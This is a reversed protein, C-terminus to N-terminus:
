RGWIDFMGCILLGLCIWVAVIPEGILFIIGLGVCTVYWFAKSMQLDKPIRCNDVGNCYVGM